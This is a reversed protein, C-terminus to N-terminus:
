VGLKNIAIYRLSPRAIGDSLGMTFEMSGDM